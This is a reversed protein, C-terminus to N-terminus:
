TTQASLQVLMTSLSQFLVWLSDNSTSVSCTATDLASFNANLTVLSDGICQNENIQTTFNCDSM